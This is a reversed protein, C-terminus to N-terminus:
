PQFSAIVLTQPRDNPLLPEVAGKAAALKQVVAKHAEQISEISNQLENFSPLLVGLFSNVFYLVDADVQTERLERGIEELRKRIQQAGTSGLPAPNPTHVAARARDTLEDIETRLSHFRALVGEADPRYATLADEGYMLIETQRRATEYDVQGLGLKRRLEVLVSVIPSFLRDSLFLPVLTFAVVILAACRLESIALHQWKSAVIMALNTLIAVGFALSFVSSWVVLSPYKPRVAMPVRFHGYSALLLGLPPLVSLGLLICMTVGIWTKPLLPSSVAVVALCVKSLIQWFFILRGGALLNSRFLRVRQTPPPFGLLLLNRFSVLFEWLVGLALALFLVNGATIQAGHAEIQGLVVWCASGITGGLAWRTWGPRRQEEEIRKIEFELYSLLRAEQEKAGPQPENTADMYM